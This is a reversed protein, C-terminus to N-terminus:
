SLRPFLAAASVCADAAEFSARMNSFHIAHQMCTNCTAHLYQMSCMRNAHKLTLMHKCTVIPLHSPQDLGLRSLLAGERM